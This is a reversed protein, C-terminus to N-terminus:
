TEVAAVDHVLCYENRKGDGWQRRFKVTKLEQYIHKRFVELGYEMQYEPRSLYLEKPSMSKANGNAVDDELLAKSESAIWQPEGRQNLIPRPHIQRDNALDAADEAARHRKLSVITLLSKFRRKFVSMEMSKYQERYNHATEMDTTSTLKNEVIDQQLRQRIPHKENWEPEKKKKKSGDKEKAVISRMGKLRGEFLKKEISQYEQRLQQAEGPRMEQPIIGDEIDKKLTLRRPDKLWPVTEVTDGQSTM